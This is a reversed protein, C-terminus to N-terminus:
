NGKVSRLAALLDRDSFPKQLITLAKSTAPATYACGTIVVIPVSLAHIEDIFGYSREGNRLNIDVLALDPISESVLRKADAATAVPGIVQAGWAELLMKLGTSVEWSDEVVLIRAGKLTAPESEFPDRTNSSTM